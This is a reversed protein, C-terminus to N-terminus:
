DGRLLCLRSLNIHTSVMGVIRRSSTLAMVLRLEETLKSARCNLINPATAGGMSIGGMATGNEPWVIFTVEYALGDKGCRLTLKV